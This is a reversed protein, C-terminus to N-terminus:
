SRFRGDDGMGDTGPMLFLNLYFFFLIDALPAREQSAPRLKGMGDDKAKGKSRKATSGGLARPSAGRGM